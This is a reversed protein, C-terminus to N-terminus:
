DSHGELTRLLLGDTVRWLRVKQDWSGSALMGGDPSFAVSNLWGGIGKVVRVPTGDSVRWLRVSHDYSGSALWTGDPSFAVSRVLGKHGKLTHLLTGDQVRWLRVTRDYSGTALVEGDPSFAVSRVVDTHGQLVQLTAGDKVRWIRVTRDWGGTAALKGDPSFAVAGVTATHGWLSYLWVGDSVRWIRVTGGDGAALLKGDPSFAFINIWVGNGWLTRLLTGDSVRWLRIEGGWAGAALIEGDPSFAVSYVWGRNDHGQLTHVLTGDDVRWVRVTGDNLGAALLTGDPSFAVDSVWAPMEWFDLLSLDTADYFYLGLGSAAVIKTGDPSFVVQSLAGKGMRTLEAVQEANAATIPVGPRPYPTNTATPPTLPTQTGSASLQTATPLVSMGPSNPEVRTTPSVQQSRKNENVLPSSTALLGRQTEVNGRGALMGIGAVLFFLLLALSGFLALFFPRRDRSRAPAHGSPWAPAAAAPPMEETTAPEIELTETERATITTGRTVQPTAVERELPSTEVYPKLLRALEEGDWPRAEPDKALMRAILDDLWAPVEPRLQRVRTGPRLHKYHRLTLAEFLTVGLSYVDSAPPLYGVTTEQEPSMYEPTGPHRPATEGLDTRQTLGHPQQVIGLDAVKARGQGDYLINSPKIDRHVLGARHLAALGLAVNYATAVVFDVPLGEQGQQQAEEIRAKLSGGPMYETVLVLLGREPEQEFDYVRVIYPVDAFRAGLRAELQFRQAVKELLGTTVRKGKTLVKLARPADLHLHIALYVEAFGGRGLLREIRYKGFLVTGPRFRAM